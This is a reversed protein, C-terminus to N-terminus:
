QSAKPAQAKEEANESLYKWLKGARIQRITCSAVGFKRAFQASSLGHQNARIELVQCEKLKHQSSKEGCQRTGHRKKDAHNNKRTDWRLNEVRSDTRVGNDHCGEMGPPCPGVFVELVMRHVLICRKIVGSDSRLNVFNYGNANVMPKLARWDDAIYAVSGRGAPRRKQRWASWVSGDSGVRYGSFGPIPRYETTM